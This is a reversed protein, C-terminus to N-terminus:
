RKREFSKELLHITKYVQKISNFKHLKGDYLYARDEFPITIGNHQKWAVINEINDDILIRNEKACLWKSGTAVFDTDVNLKPFYKKLFQIKEYICNQNWLPFTIIKVKFGEDILKNVYYVVEENPKGNIFAGKSNLINEFYEDSGNTDQWNFKTNNRWDFDDNYDKNYRNIMTENLPYLVGDMDFYLEYHRKM